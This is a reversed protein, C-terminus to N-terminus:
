RIISLALDEHAEDTPWVVGEVVANVKPELDDFEDAAMDLECLFEIYADASEPRVRADHVGEIYGDDFAEQGAQTGFSETSLRGSEFAEEYDDAAKLAAADQADKTGQAYGYAMAQDIAAYAKAILVTNEEGVTANMARALAENNVPIISKQM